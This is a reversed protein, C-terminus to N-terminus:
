GNASEKKVNKHPKGSSKDSSKGASGNSQDQNKPQSKENKEDSKVPEAQVESQAAQATLLAKIEALEAELGALRENVEEQEFRWESTLTNLLHMMRQQMQQNPLQLLSWIEELQKNLQQRLTFMQKLNTGMFNLYFPNAWLRDFYTSILKDFQDERTPTRKNM